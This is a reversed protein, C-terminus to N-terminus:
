ECPPTSKRAAPRAAACFTPESRTRLPALVSSMCTQRMISSRGRVSHAFSTWDNRAICSSANSFM